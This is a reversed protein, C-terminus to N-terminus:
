SPATEKTATAEVDAELLEPNTWMLGSQCDERFYDPQKATLWWQWMDEGSKFKAHYYPKGKDPGRQKLRNHYQEWNAIIAKKWNREYAPWREFERQQNSKTALPCGVCGLRTWGEDYLACYPVKYAKLFEWVDADTWFVIPCITKENHMDVAVERWNLKRRPSEAARVGMVKVARGKGGMEKYLQCCWRMGRTPPLSPRQAVKSMMAMKPMNWKVDPHQQKIFRVLEPADITTNNYFAEFSVEAMRCLEKIVCSDKGGSFAVYYGDPPVHDRLLAIAREVRESLTLQPIEAPPTMTTMDLGPAPRAAGAGM